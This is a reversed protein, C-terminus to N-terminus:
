AKAQAAKKRRRMLGLAGFGIPLLLGAAPVPVPSPAATVVRIWDGPQSVNMGLWITNGSYTFWDNNKNRWDNEEMGRAEFSGPYLTSSSALQSNSAAERLGNLDAMVGLITGDFTFSVPGPDNYLSGTLGYHRQSVGNKVNLFIMHSDVKTGAAIKRGGNVGIDSTLKVDQAEDFAQVRWNYVYGNEVSVPPPVIEGRVASVTAATAPAALTSAFIAVAIWKSFIM